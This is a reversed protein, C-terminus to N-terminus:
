LFSKLSGLSKCRGMRLFASFEKVQCIQNEKILLLIKLNLNGARQQLVEIYVPEVGEGGGLLERLTAQSAAELAQLGVSYM